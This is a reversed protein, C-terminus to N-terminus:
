RLGIVGLFPLGEGQPTEIREGDDSVVASSVPEFRGYPAFEGRVDTGHVLVTLETGPALGPSNPLVLKAPPCLKTHAPGLAVLMQFDWDLAVEPFAGTSFEAAVFVQEEEPYTLVDLEVETNAELVLEIGQSSLTTGPEFPSAGTLEPFLVTVQDGLLYEPGPGPLLLALQAQRVGDGYKFAASQLEQSDDHVVNGADDTDGFLCLNVGCAQAKVGGLPNGETDVVRAELHEFPVDESDDTFEPVECVAVTDDDGEPQPESPEPESPEPESPQPDLPESPEPEGPTGPEPESPEPEAAVDDDSAAGVGDDIAGESACGALPLVLFWLFGPRKRFRVM